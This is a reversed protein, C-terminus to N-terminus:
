PEALAENLEKLAAKDGAMDEFDCLDDERVPQKSVRYASLIWFQRYYNDFEPMEAKEAPDAPNIRPKGISRRYFYPERVEGFEITKGTPGVPAAPIKLAKIQELQKNFENSVQLTINSLKDNMLDSAIVNIKPDLIENIVKDLLTRTLQGHLDESHTSTVSTTIGNVNPVLEIVVNSTISGDCCVQTKVALCWWYEARFTDSIILQGGRTTMYHGTHFIREGCDNNPLAMHAGEFESIATELDPLEIESLARVSLYQMPKTTIPNALTALKSFQLSMNGSGKIVTNDFLFNQQNSWFLTYTTCDDAYASFQQATIGVFLAVFGASLCPITQM